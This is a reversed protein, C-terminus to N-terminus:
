NSPKSLHNPQNMHSFRFQSVDGRVLLDQTVKVGRCHSCTGWKSRFTHFSYTPKYWVFTGIYWNWIATLDASQRRTGIISYRLNEGLRTFSLVTAFYAGLEHTKVDWITTALTNDMSSIHHGELSWNRDVLQLNGDNTSSSDNPSTSNTFQKAPIELDGHFDM